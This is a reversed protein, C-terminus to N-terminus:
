QGSVDYGFRRLWTKDDRWRERVKVHLELFVPRGLFEEIEKRAREGVEKLKKGGKGILIGKQSDREVYIEAAIYDKQKPREKFETIAVEASYPIEQRYGEFIKERIIESVFFREPHESVVDAPYYPLHVPLYQV